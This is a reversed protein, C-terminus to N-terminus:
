HSFCHLNINAIEKYFALQVVAIVVWCVFPVCGANPRFGSNQFYLFKCFIFFHRSWLFGCPKCLITGRLCYIIFTSKLSLCINIAFM